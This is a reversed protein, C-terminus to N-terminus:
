FLILIKGCGTCPFAMVSIPFLEIKFFARVFSFSRETALLDIELLIHLADQGATLWRGMRYM